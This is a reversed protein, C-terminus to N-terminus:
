TLFDALVETQVNHVYDQYSIGVDSKKNVESLTPYVELVLLIRVLCATFCSIYVKIELKVM